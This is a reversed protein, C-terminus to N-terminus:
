RKLGKLWENFQRLDEAESPSSSGPPATPESEPPPGGFFEDYSPEDAAPERTPAAAPEAGAIPAPVGHEGFVSSLSLAEPAPRTPEGAMGREIAPPLVASPVAPPPADLVARLFQEVSEAGGEPTMREGGVAGHEAAADGELRALTERLRHDQPSRAALQRYVELALDRHGQRLFLEAMSETAVLVPEETEVEAAMVEAEVVEIVPKSEAVPAEEPVQPEGPQEAAPVPEEVWEAAQAVDESEAAAEPELAPAQQAPPPPEPGEPAAAPEVGVAWRAWSEVPLTDRPKADEGEAPADATASEAWVETAGTVNAIDAVGITDEAASEAVPAPEPQPGVTVEAEFRWEGARSEDVSPPEESAQTPAAEVPAETEPAPVPEAPAWEPAPPWAAVDLAAVPEESSAAFSQPPESALAPEPEPALEEVVAAVREPPRAEPAADRQRRLRELAHRADADGRDVELLYELREIAQNVRGTRDCVDAMGRLAIPNVPDRELAQLFAAEAADLAGADLHCRGRVILAPVYEPHRDLGTELIELARTFLGAKRLAEALPAFMLGTPNENWRRELKEIDASIAM